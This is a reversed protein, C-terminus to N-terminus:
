SRTSRRCARFEDTNMPSVQRGDLCRFSLFDLNLLTPGLRPATDETSAASASAASGGPPRPPRLVPDRRHRPRRHRGHRRRHPRFRPLSHVSHVQAGADEIIGLFEHGMETGHESPAMSRYPHLDSGCVCSRVIRVVADTPQEIKPDAIDEVRVDGPGYM